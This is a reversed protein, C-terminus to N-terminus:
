HGLLLSRLRKAEPGLQAGRQAVVYYTVQPLEHLPRAVLTRPIECCGNVVTLGM